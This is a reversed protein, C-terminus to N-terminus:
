IKEGAQQRIVAVDAAIQAQLEALGAFKQEPRVRHLFDLHLQRGYLDGAFDLLHAEVRHHLGDVTPRLGINTAALWSQGDVHAITAYVGNAPLVQEAWVDVNATPFNITRGRKDGEVVAGAVGYPRGLLPAVAAVDGEALLQRIRTSSVREDGVQLVDHFEHVAFGGLQRLFAATGERRYGLGFDGSWLGVMGVHQQLLAVFDAARTQRMAEDFPHTIIIDIGLDGLLAAREELNSLYLRGSLNQIVAQPHPFFTLVATRVRDGRAAAVMRGLLHAHGLHVGDFVGVAMYTPQPPPLQAFSAVHLM